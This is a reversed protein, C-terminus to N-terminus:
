VVSKPQDILSVALTIVDPFWNDLTYENMLRSTSFRKEFNTTKHKFLQELATAIQAPSEALKIVEDNKQNFYPAWGVKTSVVSLGSALAEFLTLPGAETLSTIVLCDMQSYIDPYSEIGYEGRPFLLCEIGLGNLHNAPEELDAGLLIVRFDSPKIKLLQIAELFWEIRKRWFNRGVWAITFKPTPSEGPSFVSFAGLPREMIKMDSLDLGSAKLIKRQDPHCLVLAGADVVGHRDGGPLYMGPNDYLDHICTVTQNPVLSQDVESTRINIWADATTLPKYSSVVEVGPLKVKEFQIKFDDFLWPSERKGAFANVQIM